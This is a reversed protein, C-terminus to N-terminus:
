VEEGEILSYALADNQRKRKLLVPIFLGVMLMGTYNSLQPLLSMSAKKKLFIDHTLTYRCYFWYQVVRSSSVPQVEIFYGNYM